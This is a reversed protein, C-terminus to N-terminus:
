IGALGRAALPIGVLLDALLVAMVPDDYFRIFTKGVLCSAVM